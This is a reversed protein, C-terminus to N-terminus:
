RRRPAHDDFWRVVADLYEDRHLLLLHSDREYIVLEVETGDAYLRERLRESQTLPVRMDQQGHLLLTPVRLEESWCLASRRELAAPSDTAYDPMLEEFVDRVDPRTAATEALDVMPARMAIANVKLGARLALATMMGGRSVAWVFITDPDADEFARAVPVLNLLDDIDAGGYEDAGASGPGGRYQTGVVLYGREAVAVLDLLTLPSISGFHRNGGRAFLVVPCPSQRRPPRAVYGRVRLGDSAYVLEACREEAIARELGAYEDATYITTLPRREYEDSLGSWAHEYDVLTSADDLAEDHSPICPRSLEILLPDTVTV